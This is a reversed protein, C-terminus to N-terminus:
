DWGTNRNSHFEEDAAITSDRKKVGELRYVSDGDGLASNQLSDPSANNGYVIGGESTKSFRGLRVYVGGGHSVISSSATNGSIEGGKMTFTGDYIYVGGGGGWDTATNGSIEGGEMAFTGSSIFVGGGGTTATNGSIEGGKMTFTGSSVDVGGGTTATNDSIEGGKMAFTGTGVYVGGGWATAMNDSIEGGEMAFTGSSVGVGGGSSATNDSIEGGKMTFTGDNVYVGGGGLATVNNGTIKSGTNMVFYGDNNVRVLSATNSSRGILTIKNNLTLTVGANLAFLSGTADLTIKREEGTGMLTIGVIKGSYNLNQPPVSENAGLVIFYNDGDLVNTAIYNLSAALNHSDIKVMTALSDGKYLGASFQPTSSVVLSAESTGVSNRAKIWFYYTTGNTLGTVNLSTATIDGGHQAATEINDQDNKWVEYGAAGEVAQWNVTVQGSGPSIAPRGPTAPIEAFASPIAIAVPSLGSAGATNKAKVWVYYTTENSLDTIVTQTTGDSIDGGRKSADASNDSTGAWVEYAAAIEVAQWSVVLKKNGATVVPQAPTAPAATPISPTGVEIDSYGASSGNGNVARLWLYYIVNNELSNITATTENVTMAPSAPRTATTAIYVEYSEAGGATEWVLTLRGVGPIVAPKGPTAPAEDSSWPTRKVSPSYESAGYGNAAKIWITYASKNTLGTVVTVTAHGPVTKSPTDPPTGSASLYVEYTEADAVGLWSITVLGDGAYAVPLGPTEPARGGSAPPLINELKIETETFIGVNAGDFYLRYIHGAEFSGFSELGVPIAGIRLSYVSAAGPAIKYLAKEGSNVVPSESSNDPKLSSGGKLLQFTYSSLNQIVIYSDGSLVEDPSALAEALAPVPVLTQKNEDIRVAVQDKGVAPTYPVVVDSIGSLVILYSFYFPHSKSPTWKIEESSAGKPIEAIKYEERRLHDDYVAVACIGKTNDFVVSTKNEQPNTNTTNNDNNNAPNLCAVFLTVVFLVALVTNKM